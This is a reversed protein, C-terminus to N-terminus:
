FVDEEAKEPPLELAAPNKLYYELHGLASAYHYGDAIRDDLTMKYDVYRREAAEGTEDLEVARRKAGFSLSVPLNGFDYLHHYVPNAGMSGTDFIAISGHYPSSEIMAQPLIDFYDLLNLLWVTFKYFLGPMKSFSSTFRAFSRGEEGAKIEDIKEGLKRYVDFVTDHASFDTKLVVEGSDPASSRRVAMVVTIKHRAYIRQGSIFRNLGPSHSVARVYAAIFLHLMGLGEYGEGRKERLWGEVQTIESTNSYLNLSGSRRSMIYPKSKYLSALSRVQRGDRRDGFRNKYNSQPM